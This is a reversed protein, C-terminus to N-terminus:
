RIMGVTENDCPELREILTLTGFAEHDSKTQSGKDRRTAIKCIIARKAVLSDDQAVKGAIIAKRNVSFPLNFDEFEQLKLNHKKIKGSLM